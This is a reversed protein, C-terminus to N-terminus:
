GTLVKLARKHCTFTLPSELLRMEGDLMVHTAAQGQRDLRMRPATYERLAPDQRWRGTLVRGIFNAWALLGRARIEYFVLTGGDLTQRAFRLGTADDMPNVTITAAAARIRITDAGITLDARLTHPHLIHRITAFPLRRLFQLTAGRAEERHRGLHTPMGLMAACLFIHGNLEAVDITQLNARAIAAIAAQPDGIPIKLDKALLNATGFPLIGLPIETKGHMIQAACAITGDGGAVIVADPNEALAAAIRAPLGGAAEGILSAQLGANEFESALAATGDEQATVLAGAKANM